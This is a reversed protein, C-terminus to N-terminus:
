PKIERTNHKSDTLAMSATTKDTEIWASSSTTGNGTTYTPVLHAGGIGASL